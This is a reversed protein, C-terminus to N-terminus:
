GFHVFNRVNEISFAVLNDSDGTQSHLESVDSIWDASFGMSKHQSSGYVNLGSSNDSNRESDIARDLPVSGVSANSTIFLYTKHEALDGLRINTGFDCLQRLATHNDAFNSLYNADAFKLWTLLTEDLEEAMEEILSTM